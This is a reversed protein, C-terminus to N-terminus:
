PAPPTDPRSCDTEIMNAVLYNWNMFGPNMVGEGTEPVYYEHMAGHAEIDRGLLRVVKERFSEAEASFGYDVLGQFVMYNSIMWVPGLWNSPNSTKEVNYMPENAALTRIGYDCGLADRDDLHLRVLDAAQEPTAIGAWMPMFGTWLRIRMPLCPWFVGLGTNLWPIDRETACQLDVSYFFRDRRDWCHRRVAEDIAARRQRYRAAGAPDGTRGLVRAMASFEKAMLCNLYISASSCRPRGFTCPDNDVGIVAGSRWYYLGTAEHRYRADYHDHLRAIDGLRAHIWSYDGGLNESVLEVFQALVPKHVNPEWRQMAKEYLGDSGPYFSPPIAGCPLQLDLFNLINGRMAEVLSERTADSASDLRMLCFLSVSAFYSDWDWMCHEYGGGAVIFPRRFAGGAAEHRMTRYHAFLHDLIIDRYRSYDSSEMSRTYVVRVAGPLGIGALGKRESPLPPHLFGALKSHPVHTVRRDAGFCRFAM